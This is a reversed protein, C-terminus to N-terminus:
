PRLGFPNAPTRWQSLSSPGAPQSAAQMSTLAAAAVCGGTLMMGTNTFTNSGKFSLPVDSLGIAADNITNHAVTSAHCSFEVGATAALTIRNSQVNGGAADLVIAIGSNVIDNSEISGGALLLVGFATSTVNNSSVNVGRALDFIGALADSVDNGTIEGHVNSLVVGLAGPASVFNDRVNATLTPTPGSGAFIGAGDVDHVSSGQINVHQNSGDANEAWIGVGCGGDMQGSARVQNIAGSSGPGYFIGALWTGSTACGQDGGTGDVAINTINVPGAHQVLVQAAVAEGSMSTVNAALGDSPVTILVQNLNGDAIGQLTLPRLITVQEPYVGPCVLVTSGPPVSDVAAQISTFSTLKPQCTGVAVKDALTVRAVFLPLTALLFLTRM